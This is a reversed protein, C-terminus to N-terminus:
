SRRLKTFSPDDALVEIQKRTLKDWVYSQGRYSFRQPIYKSNRISIGDFKDKATNSPAKQTKSEATDM